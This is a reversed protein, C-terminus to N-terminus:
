DLAALVEQIIEDMYAMAADAFLAFAEDEQEPSLPFAEKKSVICRLIKECRDEPLDDLVQAILPHKRLEAIRQDESLKDPM